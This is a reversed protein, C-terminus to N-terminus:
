GDHSGSPGHSVVGTSQEGIKHTGGRHFDAAADDRRVVVGETELHRGGITGEEVTRDGLCQLAPAPLDHADAASM